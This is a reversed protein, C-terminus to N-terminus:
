CVCCAALLPGRGLTRWVLVAGWLVVGSSFAASRQKKDGTVKVKSRQGQCEFGPSIKTSHMYGGLKM